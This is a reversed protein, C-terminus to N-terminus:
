VPVAKTATYAEDVYPITQTNHPQGHFIGFYMTFGVVDLPAMSPDSYGPRDAASSQTSLRGDYYHKKWDNVLMRNYGARYTNGNCENQTSWLLVGPRNRQAFIMERWMQLDIKRKRQAKFHVDEHQWLPVELQTAIGLRDLIRYTMPHNPYHGTRSFNLGLNALRLAEDVLEAIPQSRGVDLSEEHRAMGNLFIPHQNLTLALKHTAVTRVGFEQYFTEFPTQVALVYLSPNRLAWAQLNTTDMVLSTVGLGATFTLTASFESLVEPGCLRDARGEGLRKRM